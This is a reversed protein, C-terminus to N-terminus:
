SCKIRLCVQMHMSHSIGPKELLSALRSVAACKGKKPM